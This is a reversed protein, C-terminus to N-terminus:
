SRCTYLFTSHVECEIQLSILIGSIWHVRIWYLGKLIESFCIRPPSPFSVSMQAFIAIRTILFLQILALNDRLCVFVRVVKLSSTLIVTDCLFCISVNDSATPLFLVIINSNKSPSHLRIIIFIHTGINM